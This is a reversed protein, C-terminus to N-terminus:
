LRRRGNGTGGAGREAGDGQGTGAHFGRGEGRLHPIPPKRGSAANQPLVGDGAAGPRPLARGGPAHRPGAGRRFRRHQQHPRDGVAAPRPPHPTRRHRPVRRAAHGRGQEQRGRGAERGEHRSRGTALDPQVRRGGDGPAGPLRGARFAPRAPRAQDEHPGHLRVGAPADGARHGAAERRERLRPQHGDRRRDRAPGPAQAGQVDGRVAGGQRGAGAGRVRGPLDCRGPPNRRSPHRRAARHLRPHLGRRGGRDAHRQRLRRPLARGARRGDGDPGRFRLRRDRGGRGPARGHHRGAQPQAPRHRVAGQGDARRGAGGEAAGTRHRRFRADASRADGGDRGQIRPRHRRRLEGARDEAAARPPPRPRVRGTPHRREGFKGAGRGDGVPRLAAARGAPPDQGSPFRALPTGQRAPRPAERARRHHRDRPGGCFLGAEAGRERGRDGA